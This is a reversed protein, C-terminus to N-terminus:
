ATAKSAIPRVQLTYGPDLHQIGVLIEHINYPNTPEGTIANGLVQFIHEFGQADDIDMDVLVANDETRRFFSLQLNGFHDTTKYSGIPVCGPISHLSEDVKHFVFKNGTCSNQTAQLLSETVVAFLRDGRLEIFQQFYDTSFVASGDVQRTASAKTSLNLLGAKRIPDLGEYYNAAAAPPCLTPSSSLVSQLAASLSAFQPAIVALVRQPDVAATVSENLTDDNTISVFIGIDRYCPIDIELKYSGAPLDSVKIKKAANQDRAALPSGTTTNHFFLDVTENIRNGYVDLVELLLSGSM